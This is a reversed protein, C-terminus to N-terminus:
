QDFRSMLESVENTSVGVSFGNKVVGRGEQKRSNEWTRVAAKWDKMKNKGVFWGKSSYFDIFANADITNNRERCYGQVQDLTPPLFQKVPIPACTRPKDARNHKDLSIKDLSLKDVNHPVHASSTREDQKQHLDAKKQQRYSKYRARDNTVAQVDMLVKNLVEQLSTARGNLKDQLSTLTRYHIHKRIEQDTPMRELHATLAQVAVLAGIESLSYDSYLFHRHYIKIWEM